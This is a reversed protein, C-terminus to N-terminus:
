KLQLVEVCNPATQTTTNAVGKVPIQDGFPFYQFDGADLPWGVGVSTPNDADFSLTIKTSGKNLLAIGKRGETATISTVTTTMFCPDSQAVTTNASADIRLDGVENTYCGGASCTTGTPVAHASPAYTLMLGLSAGVFAALASVYRTM